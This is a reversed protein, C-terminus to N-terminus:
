LRIDINKNNDKIQKANNALYDQVTEKIIERVRDETMINAAAKKYFEYRAKQSESIANRSADSMIHGFHPNQRGKHNRKKKRAEDLQEEIMCSM